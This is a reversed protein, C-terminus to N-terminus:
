PGGTADPFTNSPCDELTTSTPEGDVAIIAWWIVVSMREPDEPLNDDGRNDLHTALLTILHCGPRRPVTWAIGFERTTDDFTSPPAITWGPQTRREPVTYDLVLVAYPNVGDDESRFPVSVSETDDGQLTLIQAPSPDANVVDLVPPIRQQNEYEPPDSLLCGSSAGLLLVSALAIWMSRPPHSQRALRSYALGVLPDRNLDSLGTM